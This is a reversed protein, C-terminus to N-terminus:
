KADDSGLDGVMALGPYLMVDSICSEPRFDSTMIIISTNLFSM